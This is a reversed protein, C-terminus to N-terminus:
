NIAICTLFCSLYLPDLVLMYCYCLFWAFMKKWLNIFRTFFGFCSKGRTRLYFLSLAALAIYAERCFWLEVFLFDYLVVQISLYIALSSAFVHLPFPILIAVVMPPISAHVFSLNSPLIPAYSISPLRSSPSSWRQFFLYLLFSTPATNELFLFFLSILINQQYHLGCM